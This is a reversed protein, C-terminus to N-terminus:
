IKLNNLSEISLSFMQFLNLRELDYLKNHFHLPVLLFFKETAKGNGYVNRSALKQKFQKRKGIASNIRLQNKVKNGM